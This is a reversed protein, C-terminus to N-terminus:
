FAVGASLDLSVFDRNQGQKTANKGVYDHMALGARIRTYSTPLWNVGGGYEWKRYEDAYTTSSLIPPKSSQAYDAFAYLLLQDGWIFYGPETYASWPDVGETVHRAYETTVLWQGHRIRIDAGYIEDTHAGYKGVQSSLGVVIQEQSSAWWLRGGGGVVNSSDIPNATYLNYGWDGSTLSYHGLMHVGGWLPSLLQNTRLIQPGGRRVFLVLERQQFAYGFPVYGAGGQIKFHESVEYELYGQTLLAGFVPNGFERQRPLSSPQATPDNHENAIPYALAAIIQSVFRLRPTFEAALNLGLANSSNMAQFSTDPGDLMTFGSEFFGGLRLDDKLFSRVNKRSESLPLAFDEQQRELEEIRLRLQELQEDVTQASATFAVSILLIFLICLSYRM